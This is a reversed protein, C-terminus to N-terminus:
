LRNMDHFLAAPGETVTELLALHQIKSLRYECPSRGALTGFSRGIQGATETGEVKVSIGFRTPVLRVVDM